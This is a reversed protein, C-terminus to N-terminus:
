GIGGFGHVEETPKPPPLAIKQREAPALGLVKANVGCRLWPVTFQQLMDADPPGDQVRRLLRDHAYAAEIQTNM